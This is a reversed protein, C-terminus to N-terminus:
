LQPHRLYGTLQNPFNITSVVSGSIRYIENYNVDYAKQLPWIFLPHRGSRYNSFALKNQTELTEVSTKLTDVIVKRQESTLCM